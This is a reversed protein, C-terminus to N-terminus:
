KWSFCGTFVVLFWFFQNRSCTFYTKYLFQHTQWSHEWSGEMVIGSLYTTTLLLKKKCIVVKVRFNCPYLCTYETCASFFQFKEIKRVHSFLKWYFNPLQYLVIISLKWRLKLWLVYKQSFRNKGCFLLIVRKQASLSAFLIEGSITAWSVDAAVLSDVM